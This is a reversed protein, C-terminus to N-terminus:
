PNVIPHGWFDAPPFWPKDLTGALWNLVIKGTRGNGDVFPHILELERYFELPELGGGHEVLRELRGAMEDPHPCLSTGVRVLCRRLGGKNKIPEVMMGLSVIHPVTPASWGQASRAMAFDWARRMWTVRLGGDAPDALNHGQRRVEERIYTEPTWPVPPPLPQANMASM